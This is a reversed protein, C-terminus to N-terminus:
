QGDEAFFASAFDCRIVCADCILMERSPNLTQAFSQEPSFASALAASGGLMAELGSERSLAKRDIILREASVRWFIGLPSATMLRMRCVACPQIDNRTFPKSM